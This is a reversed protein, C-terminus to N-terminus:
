GDGRGVFKGGRSGFMENAAPGTIGPSTRGGGSIGPTRGGAGKKPGGLFGLNIRGGPM